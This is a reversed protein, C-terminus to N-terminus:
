LPVTIAAGRAICGEPNPGGSLFADFLVIGTPTLISGNVHGINRLPAKTNSTVQAISVASSSLAADVVLPSQAVEPTGGSENTVVNGTEARSGAPGSAELKAFNALFFFCNLKVTAGSLSFLTAISPPEFSSPLTSNFFVAKQPQGAAGEKGGAGDKGSTGNSGNKGAPGVNNWSVKSEGKKCKPKKSFLHATGNKKVCAFVTSANASSAAAFSAVILAGGAALLVLVRRLSTTSM